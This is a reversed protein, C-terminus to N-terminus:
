KCNKIEPLRKTINRYDEYKYNFTAKSELYPRYAIWDVFDKSRGMALKAIIIEKWLKFYNEHEEQASTLRVFFDIVYGTDAVWDGKKHKKVVERTVKVPQKTVADKKYFSVTEVHEGDSDYFEGDIVGQITLSNFGNDAGYFSNIPKYTPFKKNFEKYWGLKQLYKLGMEASFDVDPGQFRVIDELVKKEEATKFNSYPVVWDIDHVTEELTRYVTGVKRLALSGTLVLNLQERGFDVIKKAFPDSNLTSNYYKQVQGEGLGYNYHYYERTLMEDVVSLGLNTLEKTKDEETKFYIGLKGLMREIDKIFNKWWTFDESTWRRDFQKEFQQPNQYHLQLMEGLFDIIVKETIKDKWKPMDKVFGKESYLDEKHKNFSEAYGPWSKILYRLGSRIKNNEAGLMRYAIYAAEPVVSEGEEVAINKTVLDTMSAVDFGLAEKISEYETVTIGFDKLFGEKLKNDLTMEAKSQQQPKVYAPLNGRETDENGIYTYGQAELEESQVDDEAYVKERFQRGTNRFVSGDDDTYDEKTGVNDNSFTKEYVERIAQEAKQEVDAGLYQKRKEWKKTEKNLVVYDELDRTGVGAFDKTLTPTDTEVFEGDQLVHWVQTTTDWVYVPKGLKIGLQVATNTGGSVGTKDSNLTAVAYVADANAVQYYNRVQLNGELTDPYRIGLVREVENRAKEIQEKELITAEVKSNRLRKSVKPNGKDKYHLHNTVGFERGIQDWMTDGGYAGGSHNVLKEPTLRAVLPVDKPDEEPRLSELYRQLTNVDVSAGDVPKLKFDRRAGDQLYMELAFQLQRSAKNDTALGFIERILNIFKQGFSPIVKDISNRFEVSALANAVFEDFGNIAGYEELGSNRVQAYMDVLVKVPEPADDLVTISGNRVNEEKIYPSLYRQNIAHMLEELYVEFFADGVTEGENLVIDIAFNRNIYITNNKTDYFAVDSNGPQQVDSFKAPFELNVGLGATYTELETLLDIQEKNLGLGELERLGTEILSTVRQAGQYLQTFLINEIGKEKKSRAAQEKKIIQLDTEIPKSARTGKTNYYNVSNSKVTDIRDYQFKGNKNMKGEFLHKEGTKSDTYVMYQPNAQGPSLVFSAAKSFAKGIGAYKMIGTAGVSNKMNDQLLKLSANKNDGVSSIEKFSHLNHSVSSFKGAFEPNHQIFQRLFGDTDLNDLERDKNRIFDTFGLIDLAEMPVFERLGTFGRRDRGLYAYSALDLALMQPTLPTGDAQLMLETTTDQLLEQFARYKDRKDDQDTSDSNVIITFTDGATDPVYQLSKLLANERMIEHNNKKLTKVTHLLSGEKDGFIRAREQQVTGTFLGSHPSNFYFERLSEMLTFRVEEAMNKSLTPKFGKYIEMARDTLEMIKPHRYPYINQMFKDGTSLAAVAVIGETTQPKVYVNDGLHVYDDTDGPGRRFDGIINGINNFFENDLMTRMTGLKDIVNFYSKGLGSTNLNYTSELETLRKSDADFRLFQQLAVAQVKPNRLATDPRLNEYLQEPSLYNETAKLFEEEYDGELKLINEFDKDKVAQWNILSTFGYKKALEEIVSVDVTPDFDSTVGQKNSLIDVYDFMIPQSILMSPVSLVVEDKGIPVINADFGLKTMLTFANLTYSNENRKGMVQAKVNDTASNQNEALVDAVTRLGDLTMTAGLLGKSVLKKGFSYSRKLSVKKDDPLREYQSHAVVANSWVSIGTKGSAGLAMQEAQYEESYINFYKNSGKSRMNQIIEVSQEAFAFSLVKMVNDQVVKIPSTYVSTYVDVMANELAKQIHVQKDRMDRYKTFNERAELSVTQMALEVAIIEDNIIQLIEAETFDPYVAQIANLAEAYERTLRAHSELSAAPVDTYYALNQEIQALEYRIFQLSQAQDQAKILRGRLSQNRMFEQVQEKTEEYLVHDVDYKMNFDLSEPLEYLKIYGDKTVYYHHKYLSRKDVDFDEGLQTTHERPVVVTDGSEPPLFGVVELMAGSQLASTPIRFSFMQLLKKPVREPDLMYRGTEENYKSYPEKSLDVLEWSGDPNENRFHSKILIESYTITGDELTTSKLDGEHDPNAWVIRSRVNYDLNEYGGIKPKQFGEASASVHQYGPLKYKILRNTIISQLMSEFKNTNPSMWLPINFALEEESLTVLDLGDVIYEPYERTELESQIVKKIAKLTFNRDRINGDSDLGLEQYLMDRQNRSYLREVETKMADLEAGTLNDDTTELNTVEKVFEKVRNSFTNNLIKKKIKNVGNGMILKWMQSGMIITDELKSALHKSMKDPVDLQIRFNSRSLESIALGLPGTIAGTESNVQILDEFDRYYLDNMTLSTKQAGVKAATIYSLRVGRVAPQPHKNNSPLQMTALREMKSRVADLELGKTLQPLLPFSSSKVYVTRMGTPQDYDFSGDSNKFYEVERGTHVPKIPNTVIAMLEDATLDSNDGRKLKAYVSELLAKDKPKLRGQRFVVDFHEQWTTYEQADTGEIGAYASIDPYAEKLTDTNSKITAELEAIKVAREEKNAIKHVELLARESDRIADFAEEIASPVEGYMQKVLPLFLDGVTENDNVFIQYYKENKSNALVQGPAILMAMRKTMSEGAKIALQLFNPKPGKVAPAFYAPDGSILQVVNHQHLFNNITFDMATLLLKEKLGKGNGWKILYNHDIMLEDREVLSTKGTYPDYEERLNKKIIGAKIWSGDQQVKNKFENHLLNKTATTAVPLFSERIADASIDGASYKDLAESMTFPVGEIEAVLDNYMMTGVFYESASSYGKTINEKDLRATFIRELEAGYTQETVFALVRDSIAVYDRGKDDSMVQLDVTGLDLLPTVYNVANSKDSLAANFMRGMRIPIGHLIDDKISSSLKRLKSETHTFFSLETIIRDARGLTQLKGSKNDTSREALAEPGVFEINFMNRIDESANILKLLFNNRSYPIKSLTQSNESPNGDADRSKLDDVADYVMMTQVSGQYNKGGARFSDALPNGELKLKTSIVKNIHTSLNQYIDLEAAKNNYGKPDKIVRDILAYSAQLTQLFGGNSALMTKRDNIYSVLTANDVTMGLTQFVDLIEDYFEVPIKAGILKMDPHANIRQILSEVNHKAEEVKSSVFNGEEDFMDSLKWQTKWEQQYKVTGASRNPNFLQMAYGATEKMYYVISRMELKNQILNYLLQNKIDNPLMPNELKDLIGQVVYDDSRKKLETIVDDFSSPTNVMVSRLTSIATSAPVYKPIGLFNVAPKGDKSVQRIGSFFIKLDVSFSSKINKTTSDQDHLQERIGDDLDDEYDIDKLSLSNNVMQTLQGYGENTYILEPTADVVAQLKQQKVTLQRIVEPYNGEQNVRNILNNVKALEVGVNDKVVNIVAKRVDSVTRNTTLSLKDMIAGHLSELVIKYQANDLGDLGPIAISALRQKESKRLKRRTNRRTDQEIGDFSMNRFAEQLSEPLDALEEELTRVIQKVEEPQSSEVTPAVPLNGTQEAQHVIEKIPDIQREQEQTLKSATGGFELSTIPQINTMYKVEGTSRDVIRRAYVDTRRNDMVFRDYSSVNDPFDMNDEGYPAVYNDETIIVMGKSTGVHTANTSNRLRLIPSSGPSKFLKGILLASSRYSPKGFQYINGNKVEEMSKEGPMTKDYIVVQGNNNVHMYATGTPSKMKTKGSLTDEYTRTDNVRSLFKEEAIDVQTFMSLFEGIGGEQNTDNMVDIGMIDKISQVIDRASAENMGIKTFYSHVRKAEIDTVSDADPEAGLGLKLYLSASLARRITEFTEMSMMEGDTPNKGITPYAMYEITGDERKNVARIEYTVGPIFAKANLLKGGFDEGGTKLSNTETAVAMISTPSMVSIPTSVDEAAFRPDNQVDRVKVHAGMRRESIRGLIGGPNDFAMQRTALLQRKASKIIEAQDSVAAVNKKNYWDLDHIWNIERGSTTYVKMPVKAVYEPTGVQDESFLEGFPAFGEVITGNEDPMYTKVLLNKAEDYTLARLTVESGEATTKFDWWVDNGEALYEKEPINIDVDSSQGFEDTQYQVGLGALTVNPSMTQRLHEQVQAEDLEKEEEIDTEIQRIQSEAAEQIGLAENETESDSTGEENDTVPLPTIITEKASTNSKASVSPTPQKVEPAPTEESDEFDMSALLSDVSSPSEFFVDHIDTYTNGFSVSRGTLQWGFELKSYNNWVYDRGFVDVANTLYDWFASEKGLAADLEAQEILVAQRLAAQLNPNDKNNIKRRTNKRTSEEDEGKNYKTLEVRIPVWKLEGNSDHAEVVILNKGQAFCIEGFYLQYDNGEKDKGNKAALADLGPKTKDNILNGTIIQGKKFGLDTIKLVKQVPKTVVKTTEKPKEANIIDTIQSKVTEIRESYEKQQTELAGKEEETLDAAELRGTIRSLEGQLNGLVSEAEERTSFNGDIPPKTEEVQVGEQNEEPEEEVPVAPSQRKMGAVLNAIEEASEEGDDLSNLINATNVNAPTAPKKPSPTITQAPTPTNSPPTKVSTTATAATKLEEEKKKVVEKLSQNKELLDFNGLILDHLDQVAKVNTLGQLVQKRELETSAENPNIAKTIKKYQKYSNDLAVKLDAQAKDIFTNSDQLDKDVTDLLSEDLKAKQLYEADIKGLKTSFATRMQELETMTDILTLRNAYNVLAADVDIGPTSALKDYQEGILVANGRATSLATLDMDQTGQETALKDLTEVYKSLTGLKAHRVLQANHLEHMKQKAELKKGAKLDESIETSAKLLLAKNHQQRISEMIAQKNTPTELNMKAIEAKQQLHQKRLAPVNSVNGFTAMAGGAVLGAVFSDAQESDWKTAGDVMNYYEGKGVAVGAREAVTNLIAEELVAEKLAEKSVSKLGSAIGRLSYPNKIINDHLKKSGAFLRAGSLNQLFSTSNIMVATEYAMSGKLAIESAQEKNNEAWQIRMQKLQKDAKSFAVAESMEPNQALIDNAIDQVKPAKMRADTLENIVQEQADSAILSSEKMTELAAISSVKAGGSILNKKILARSGKNVAASMMNATAGTAIAAVAEPIEELIEGYINNMFYDANGVMGWNPKTIYDWADYKPEYMPEGADDLIPEGNDDLLMTEIDMIAGRNGNDKDKPYNRGRISVLKDSVEGTGEFLSGNVGLKELAGEGVMTISNMYDTRDKQYGEFDKVEGRAFDSVSKMAGMTANTISESATDGFGSFMEKLAARRGAIVDERSMGAYKKADIKAYEQAMNNHYKQKQLSQATKEKSDVRMFKALGAGLEEAGAMVDHGQQKWWNSSFVGGPTDYTNAVTNLLGSIMGSLNNASSMMSSETLPRVMYGADKASKNVANGYLTNINKTEKVYDNYEQANSVTTINGQTKIYSGDTKKKITIGKNHYKSNKVADAFKITPNGVGKDDEGWSGTATKWIADYVLTTPVHSLLNDWIQGWRSTDATETKVAASVREKETTQQILDLEKMANLQVDTPKYNPDLSQNIRVEDALKQNAQMVELMENTAKYIPKLINPNQVVYSEYGGVQTSPNYGGFKHKAM